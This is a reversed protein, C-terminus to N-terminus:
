KGTLYLDNVEARRRLGAVWDRILVNRREELLMARAQDRVESYPRLVGNRTFAAEHARYYRVIEDEAPELAAGFRQDLYTSIRLDDRLRLRLQEVSLGAQALVTEFEQASAFRSRVQALRADVVEEAPEPPLYRNVETLQLQREILADLASRIPDAGAPPM